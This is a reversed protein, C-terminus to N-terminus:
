RILTPSIDVSQKAFIEKLDPRTVDMEAEKSRKEEVVIPDSGKAIDHNLLAAYSAYQLLDKYISAFGYHSNEVESDEITRGTKEGRERVRDTATEIDQVFNGILVVDGKEARSALAAHCNQRTTEDHASPTLSSGEISKIGIEDALYNIASHCGAMLPRVKWFSNAHNQPNYGVPTLHALIDNSFSLSKAGRLYEAITSLTTNSGRYDSLIEDQLTSKGVGFGGAIYITTPREVQMADYFYAKLMDAFNESDIFNKYDNMSERIQGQLNRDAIIKEHGRLEGYGPSASIAREISYSEMAEKAKIRATNIQTATLEM